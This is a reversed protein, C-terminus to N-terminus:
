LVRAKKGDFYIDEEFRVGFDEFYASPEIAMTAGALRDRSKVGLRPYEHVELGIGHGIAHPLEPLGRKKFQRRSFEALESGTALDPLADLIDDFMGQLKLYAAEKKRDGFFFCRTIDSSYYDFRVGFDVLVMGKIRANGTRYHPFSSNRDAAVIPKFSVDLGREMTQAMLQKRVQAETMGKKIELSAIIERAIGAAKKVKDVEEMTKVMRRRSLEASVDVPRCFKRLHETLHFYMSAGDVGVRGGKALKRLEAIPDQYPIVTGAFQEKAIKLNMRPVLLVERGDEVFLFSHDIDVNSYHYFNANFHEDRYLLLPYKM